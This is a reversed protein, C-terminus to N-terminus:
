EYTAVDRETELSTEILPRALAEGREAPLDHAEFSAAYRSVVAGERDADVLSRGADAKVAAVDEAARVREIDLDAIRDAIRDIETRLEGLDDTEDAAM